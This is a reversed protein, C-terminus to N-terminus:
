FTGVIALSANHTYGFQFSREQSPDFDQDLRNGVMDFRLLIGPNELAALLFEAAVAQWIERGFHAAPNVEISKHLFALGERVQEKAAADGGVAKPFAGHILFTGLNAYTTYLPRGSQELSEQLRLKDRLVRVAEDDNKLADM